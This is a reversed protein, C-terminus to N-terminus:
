GPRGSQRRKLAEQAAKSYISNPLVDLVLNFLRTAEAERGTRQCAVALNYYGAALYKAGLRVQEGALAEELTTRAEEPQQMRLLTAGRNILVIRRDVAGPALRLALRYAGLARVYQGRSLFWNGLDILLRVRMTLLYLVVLFLLPHIPVSLLVLGLALATIALGELAFRLPLGQRRMASLGGFAVIYICGILPILLVNSM